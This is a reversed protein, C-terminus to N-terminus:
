GTTGFTGITVTRRTNTGPEVTCNNQVYLRLRM